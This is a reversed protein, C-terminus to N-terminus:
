TTWGNVAPFALEWFPFLRNVTREDAEALKDTALASSWARHVPSSTNNAREGATFPQALPFFHDGFLKEFVFGGVLLL